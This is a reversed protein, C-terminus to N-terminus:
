IPSLPPPRRPSGAIVPSCCLGTTWPHILVHELRAPLWRPHANPRSVARLDAGVYKGLHALTSSRSADCHGRWSGGRCENLTVLYGRSSRRAPIGAGCSRQAAVASTPVPSTLNSGGPLGPYGVPRDDPEDAAGAAGDNLLPSSRSLLRCCNRVM